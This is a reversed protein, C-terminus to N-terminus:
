QVVVSLGTPPFSPASAAATNSPASEMGNFTATGVYCYNGPTVTDDTYIKETIGTALTSFTPTGSCLGVARKISYTTGPPNSLDNWTLTVKHTAQADLMTTILFVFLLKM